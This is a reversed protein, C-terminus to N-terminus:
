NPQEATAQPATPQSAVALKQLSSFLQNVAVPTLVLRAAVIRRMRPPNNDASEDIRLCALTIGVNGQMNGIGVVETVYIEREHLPDELPPRPPPLTAM